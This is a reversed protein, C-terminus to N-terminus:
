SSLIRVRAPCYGLGLQGYGNIIVPGLIGTAWVVQSIGPIWPYGPFITAANPRNLLWVNHYNCISVQLGVSVAAYLSYATLRIM